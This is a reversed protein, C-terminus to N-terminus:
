SSDVANSAHNTTQQQEVVDIFKNIIKKISLQKFVDSSLVRKSM